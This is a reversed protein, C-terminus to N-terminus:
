APRISTVPCDASWYHNQKDNSEVHAVKDGKSVIRCLREPLDENMGRRSAPKYWYLGNSSKIAKQKKM